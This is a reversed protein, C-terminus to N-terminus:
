HAAESIHQNDIETPAEAKVALPVLLSSSFNRMAVPRARLM